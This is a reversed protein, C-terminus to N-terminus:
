AKSVSSIFYDMFEKAKVATAIYANPKANIGALGARQEVIMMGRTHKGLTEVNAQFQELALFDPNIVYGIASPDHLPNGKLAWVNMYFNQYRKVISKVFIGSRNDPISKVLEPTLIVQHTVDLPIIIKKVDQALVYDAAEPDAYFNAEAVPSVNGPHRFAGGMIVLEDLTNMVEPNNDFALAINTLAGTAVITKVAGSSVRDIIYQHAPTEIERRTSYPVINSVDGLGDKGHVNEANHVECLLPNSAGAAVPIDLRGFYDLVRLANKTTQDLTTNGHVTTIGEIGVNDSNLALLIALADDVCPDCDLIVNKM